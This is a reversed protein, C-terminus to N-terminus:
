GCQYSDPPTATVVLAGAADTADVGSIDQSPLEAIYARVGNAVTRGTLQAVITQGGTMRVQVASVDAGVLGVTFIHPALPGSVTGGSRVCRAGLSPAEGAIVVGGAAVYGDSPTGLGTATPDYSSDTRRAFAGIQGVRADLLLEVAGSPTALTIDGPLRAPLATTTTTPPTPTPTVVPGPPNATGAGADGASAPDPDPSGRTPAAGPRVPPDDRGDDDAEPTRLDEERAEDVGEPDDRGDDPTTDRDPHDDNETTTTTEDQTEVRDPEHDPQEVAASGVLLLLVAAAVVFRRRARVVRKGPVAATRTQLAEWADPHVVATAAMAALRTRVAAELAPDAERGDDIDAVSGRPDPTM